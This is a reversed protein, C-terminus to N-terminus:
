DSVAARLDVLEDDTLLLSYTEGEPGRITLMWPKGNPNVQHLLAFQM